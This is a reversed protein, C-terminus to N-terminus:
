RTGCKLSLQLVAGNPLVAEEVIADDAGRLSTKQDACAPVQDSPEAGPKIPVLQMHRALGSRQLFALMAGHAAAVDAPDGWVQHLTPLPLAEAKGIGNCPLGDKADGASVDEGAPLQHPGGSDGVSGDGSLLGRDPAAQDPEERSSGHASMTDGARSTNPPSGLLAALGLARGPDGPLLPNRRLQAAAAGAPTQRAGPRGSPLGNAAVTSSNSSEVAATSRDATNGIYSDVTTPQKPATSCAAPRIPSDARRTPSQATVRPSLLSRAKFNALSTLTTIPGLIPGFSASHMLLEERQVHWSASADADDDEDIDDLTGEELDEEDDEEGETYSTLGASEESRQEQLGLSPGAASSGAKATDEVAGGASSELGATTTEHATGGALSESQRAKSPTHAAGNPLSPQPADASKQSLKSTEAISKGNQTSTNPASDAENGSSVNSSAQQHGNTAPPQQKKAGKSRKKKASGKAPGGSGSGDIFSLLDDLSRDDGRPAPPGELRLVQDGKKLKEEEERRRQLEKRKKEYLRNLLRIKPDDGFNRVPELKEEETLDDPLQFQARIQEPTKGEILRALARSTLDVLPKMDLADAASTLECLRRTDLRVFKEDFMKREKDSRGSARHFRCYQLLLQLVEPTVKSPLAIPNETNFGRGYHLVERQIYPSLFAVEREIEEIAARGDSDLTEAFIYSADLAAKLNQEQIAHSPEASAMPELGSPLGLMSRGSQATSARAQDSSSKEPLGNSRVPARADAKSGKKGAM